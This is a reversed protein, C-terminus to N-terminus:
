VSVDKGTLFIHGTAAGGAATTLQVGFYLYGVVSFVPSIKASNTLTIASPHAEFLKGQPDNSVVVTFVWSTGTPTIPYAQASGSVLDKCSMVIKVGGGPGSVASNFDVPQPFNANGVTTYTEIKM